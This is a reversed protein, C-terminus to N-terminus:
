GWPQVGLAWHILMVVVVIVVTAIVYTLEKRKPARNPPTWPGEAANIAVVSGLAWVLLGGFLVFSPTDGNVLLHAIAWLSYGTLQPHRLKTGLWVRDGKPGGVAYIYFALVMLINNIGVLAPSRGWYFAGEAGRYGIVMLIVSLVVLGAVIGKGKDGFSARHAPAVRKWAHAAVWLALGAILLIWSIM